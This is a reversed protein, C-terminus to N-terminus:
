RGRRVMRAPGGPAVFRDLDAKGRSPQDFPLLIARFPRLDEIWCRAAAAAGLYFDPLVMVPAEPAERALLVALPRPEDSKHAPLNFGSLWYANNPSAALVADVGRSDMLHLLRDLNCFRETVPARTEPDTEPSTRSGTSSGARCRRRTRTSRARSRRSRCRCGCPRPRLARSWPPGAGASAGTSRRWRRARLPGDSALRRRRFLQLAAAPAPPQLPQAGLRARRACPAPYLHRRARGDGRGRGHGVDHLGPDIGGCFAGGSHHDFVPGRHSGPVAMMPGNDDGVDDLYIGLALGTDNTHPYFAWDQHWEVAAGFHAAKMNLKSNHIRIDPGLLPEVADLVAASRMLRDFFPWHEFPSKLRRVRPAGPRHSDELDYRADSAELGRAGAVAMGAERRLEELLDAPLAGPLVLWGTEEFREVQEQTLSM